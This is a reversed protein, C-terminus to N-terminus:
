HNITWKQIDKDREKQDKITRIKLKGSKVQGSMVQLTILEGNNIGSKTTNKSMVICKYNNELSKWKTM